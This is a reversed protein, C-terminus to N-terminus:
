SSTSDCKKKTTHTTQTRGTKELNKSLKLSNTVEETKNNSIHIHTRPETISQTQPINHQTREVNQIKDNMEKRKLSNSAKDKKDISNHTNTPEATLIWINTVHNPQSIEQDYEGTQIKELFEFMM